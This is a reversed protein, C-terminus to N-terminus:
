ARAGRQFRSRLRARTKGPRCKSLVDEMVERNEPRGIGAAKAVKEFSRM